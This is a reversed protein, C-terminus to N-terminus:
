VKKFSVSLSEFLPKEPVVPKEELTFVGQTIVHPDGELLQWTGDGQSGTGIEWLMAWEYVFAEPLFYKGEKITIIAERQQNKGASITFQTEWRPKEAEADIAPAGPPNFPRHGFFSDGAEFGFTFTREPGSYDFNCTVVIKDGPYVKFSM